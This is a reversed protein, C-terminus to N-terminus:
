YRVPIDIFNRLAEEQVFNFASQNRVETIGGVDIPKILKQEIPL